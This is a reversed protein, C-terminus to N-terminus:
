VLIAGDYRLVVFLLVTLILLTHLVAGAKELSFESGGDAEQHTGTSFLSLPDGV